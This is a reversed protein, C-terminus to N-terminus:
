KIEEYNADTVHPENNTTDNTAETQQTRRDTKIEEFEVDEGAEKYYARVREKRNNKKTEQVNQEQAKKYQKAQQDYAKKFTHATKGVAFFVKFLPFFVFIVLLLILLEM